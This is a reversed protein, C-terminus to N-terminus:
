AENEKEFLEMLARHQARFAEAGTDFTENKVHETAGGRELAALGSFVGLHPELTRTGAFGQAFAQMLIDRIRGDGTGCLVNRGGALADKIHFETVFAHLQEWCALPDEGCQVFNAFDFACGLGESHLERMLLACRAGTDGYIDKENEHVLKVGYPRAIDLFVRLKKLVSATFADAEGDAVYFSFIRISGCGLEAAIRCLERLQECQRHFAEEDQIDIKGIPSGLSSVGVGAARLRPALTQRAEELTFEAINRGDASRLCISPIGLSQVVELQRDFSRDIEDSFGSLM